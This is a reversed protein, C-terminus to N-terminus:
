LIFFSTLKSLLILIKLLDWLNIKCIEVLYARNIFHMLILPLIKIVKIKSALKGTLMYLTSLSTARLHRDCLNKTVM